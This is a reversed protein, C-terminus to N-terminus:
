LIFIQPFSFVQHVWAAQLLQEYLWRWASASPVGSHLDNAALVILLKPLPATVIPIKAAIREMSVSVDTPLTEAASLRSGELALGCVLLRNLLTSQFSNLVLSPAESILLNLMCILGHSIHSKMPPTKSLSAQYEWVQLWEPAEVRKPPSHCETFPYYSHCDVKNSLGKQTLLHYVNCPMGQCHWCYDNCAQVCNAKSNSSQCSAVLDRIQCHASIRALQSLKALIWASFITVPFIKLKASSPMPEKNCNSREM